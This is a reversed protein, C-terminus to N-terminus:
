TPSSMFAVSDAYMMFASVVSSAFIIYTDGHKSKFFERKSASGPPHRQAPDAGEQWDLHGLLLLLQDPLQEPSEDVVMDEELMGVEDADQLDM